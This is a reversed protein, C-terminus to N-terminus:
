TGLVLQARYGFAEIDARYIMALRARTARELSPRSGSANLHPIVIARGTHASLVSAVSSMDELRGVLDFQGLEPGLLMSQPIAHIDMRREDREFEGMVYRDITTAYREAPDVKDYYFSEFRAIPDRVVTFKFYGAWRTRFWRYLEGVDRAWTYSYWRHIDEDPDPPGGKFPSLAYKVSTCGAKPVEVYVIKAADIPHCPITGDWPSM